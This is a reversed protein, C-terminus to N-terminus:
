AAEAPAGEVFGALSRGLPARIGFHYERSEKLAVASKVGLVLVAQTKDEEAGKVKFSLAPTMPLTICIAGTEPGTSALRRTPVSWFESMKSPATAEKPAFALFFVTKSDSLNVVDASLGTIWAASDFGSALGIAKNNRLSVVGSAFDSNAAMTVKVSFVAEEPTSYFLANVM